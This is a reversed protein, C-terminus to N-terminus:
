NHPGLAKREACRNNIISSLFEVAFLLSMEM